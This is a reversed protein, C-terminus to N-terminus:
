ETTNVISGNRSCNFPLPSRLWRATPLASHASTQSTWWPDAPPPTRSTSWTSKSRVDGLDCLLRGKGETVVGWM